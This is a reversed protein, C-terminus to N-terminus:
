GPPLAAYGQFGRGIAASVQFAVMFLTDTAPTFADATMMAATYTVTPATLGTFARTYTTPTEPHFGALAAANPLLYIEYAETAEALPPTDTGDLLLGGVRSRRLWTLVLNGGSPARALHVPAYPKLDYGLYTFSQNPVQDMFRGSPVLRWFERVGVEPLSIKNGRLDGALLVLVLEGPNHTGTAWETGRRGRLLESLTVSGDANETIVQAQIIEQGVLFANAGNMLDLTSCTVPQDPGILQVTLTSTHDPTFPAVTDPLTERTTGSTAFQAITDFLPWDGGNTSHFLRVVTSAPDNSASAAAYYIRSAGDGAADNDQLLPVNFLLLDVLPEPVVVQPTFSIQAGRTTSSPAYVSANESHLRLQMSYDAGVDSAEIRVTYIDGNDLNVTITDTPDLWLLSAPLATQYTDREAWLTYLWSEAIQRAQLANTIIPLDVTQVRRSFTSRIPLATRKAYTANPQYDLLPDTFRVNIQIPMEQEQAHTERWYQSADEQDLSGLQDQTLVVVPSQGRPVFKLKYDSEVMDIQFTHLLDALAAGASKTANVVYGTVTQTVLDVDVMDSTVDVQACLQQIVESVPIESTAKRDLYATYVEGDGGWYVTRKAYSDYVQTGVGSSPAPAGVPVPSLFAEGTTTDIYPITSSWTPHGGLTGMDLVSNGSVSVNSSSTWVVGKGPVYKFTNIGTDYGVDTVIIGDDTSDYVPRAGGGSGGSVGFTAPDITVPDGVDLPPAFAGIGILGLLSTSPGWDKPDITAKLLYCAGVHPDFADANTFWVDTAGSTPDTKGWCCAGRSFLSHVPLPSSAYLGSDPNCVFANGGLQFSGAVMDFDGTLSPVRTAIFTTPIGGGAGYFDLDIEVHAAIDLTRVDITYFKIFSVNFTGGYRNSFGYVSTGNGAAIGQVEPHYRAGVCVGTNLDFARLTGGSSLTYVRMNTWDAALNAGFKPSIDETIDPSWRQLKKFLTTTDSRNTWLATVNPFRMGYHSLDIQHMVLYCLGRYAPAADAPLVHDHVWAAMEVDPLQDEGGTYTRFAFGGGQSTLEHPIAATGDYFLKGDLWIKLLEAPGVCFAVAGSQFYSTQTNGGGGIGKGAGHQKTTVGSQWIVTGPIRGQGFLVPISHGYSSTALQWDPILPKQARNFIMSGILGGAMGGIAGGIPGGLYSGLLNGTIAFFSTGAQQGM